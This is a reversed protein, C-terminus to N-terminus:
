VPVDQALEQLSRKDGTENNTEKETKTIDDFATEINSHYQNLATQLASPSTLHIILHTNLHKELFDFTQINDPDTTAIFLGKDTQDFAIIDHTRAIPEPILFLIDQRITKDQLNTYPIGIGEALAQYLAEESLLKRNIISETLSASNKEAEKFLPDLQANELIKQTTLISYIKKNSIM